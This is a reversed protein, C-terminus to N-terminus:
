DHVINKVFQAIPLIFSKQTMIKRVISDMFMTSDVLNSMRTELYLDLHGSEIMRFVSVDILGSLISRKHSAVSDNM